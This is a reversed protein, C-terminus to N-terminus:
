IPANMGGPQALLLRVGTIRELAIGPGVHDFISLCGELLARVHDLDGREVRHWLSPLYRVVISLAYLAVLHLIAADAKGWLPAIISTGTHDSKYHEFHSWWLEDNPHRVEGVFHPKDHESEVTEVAKINAVPLKLSNVWDETIVASPPVLISAYTVKDGPPPKTRGFISPHQNRSSHAVRFSLAPRGLCEPALLQLEPLRLLVDAVSVLKHRDENRVDSWQKIRNEIVFEALALGRFKAYSAFHGSSRAFVHMAHPFADSDQVIGLGHGMETHRQVSSLDVTPDDGAVQEAITAQLFAYYRTLIRAGLATAPTQWYGLASRVASAVGEAKRDLADATMGPARAAIVQRALTKSTLRGFRLWITELFDTTVIRELPQNVAM